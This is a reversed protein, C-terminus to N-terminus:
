RRRRTTSSTLHARIRESTIGAVLEARSVGYPLVNWSRFCHVLVESAQHDALVYSAGELEDLAEVVASEALGTLHAWRAPTLPTVGVHSVDPASALHLLLLRAPASLGAEAMERWVSTAVRSGARNM